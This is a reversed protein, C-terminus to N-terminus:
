KGADPVQFHYKNISNLRIEGKFKDIDANVISLEPISEIIQDLDNDSLDIKMGLLDGGRPAFYLDTKIKFKEFECAELEKRSILGDTNEVLVDKMLDLLGQLDSGELEGYIHYSEQGHYEKKEEELQMNQYIHFVDLDMISHLDLKTNTKAKAQQEWCEKKENYLYVEETKDELHRSYSKWGQDKSFSFLELSLEGETYSGKEMEAQTHFDTKLEVPVSLFGGDVDGGLEVKVNVDASKVGTAYKAVAKTLISEVTPRGCGQMCGIALIAVM